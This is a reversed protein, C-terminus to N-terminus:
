AIVGSSLLGLLAAIRERDCVLQPDALAIAAEPMLPYPTTEPDEVVVLGGCERVRRAGEAGDRSAGGLVVAVLGHGFADAASVFLPDLAPRSFYVPEDLVLSFVRDDEVMLHYDPPALWVVGGTCPQKDLPVRVDLACSRALLKSLLSPENARLHVVVVIALATTAAIEPLLVGLTEIAGASGGIVIAAPAHADVWARAREPLPDNLHASVM